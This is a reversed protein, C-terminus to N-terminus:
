TKNMPYSKQFQTVFYEEIYVQALELVLKRLSYLREKFSDTNLPIGETDEGNGNSDADKEFVKFFHSHVQKELKEPKLNAKLPIFDYAIEAVCLKACYFFCISSHHLSSALM